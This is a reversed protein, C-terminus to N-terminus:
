TKLAASIHLIGWAKSKKLGLPGLGVGGTKLASTGESDPNLTFCSLKALRLCVFLGVCVWVCPRHLVLSCTSFIMLSSRHPWCHNSHYCCGVARQWKWSWTCCNSVQIEKPFNPKQLLGLYVQQEMQRQCFPICEKKFTTWPGSVFCAIFIWFEIM